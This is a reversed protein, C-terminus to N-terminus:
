SPAPTDGSQRSARRARRHEKAIEDETKLLQRSESLDGIVPRWIHAGPNADILFARVLLTLPIALIAGIPGLVVVWFLVSFFTITQSLSVANGVVKPQIVSQIVANIVGYVVIIWIATPWGGVIFGFVLPPIIALFYGVNPIFSCIFALLGWLLAAPVHMIFLALSNLAGQVLGLVTTVVMYRRVNSSYNALSLVLAPHTRNLQRVITPVYISDGAMLILMTLIIVLTGTLGFVNGVVGTAFNVITSPDFSKKVADIQDPGIGLNTLWTTISKGIQSLQDAYTPLMAVFQAFAIVLAFIFGALLLFVVVSVSGTALGHAVGRKELFGRVPEACITLVLTLLVPALIGRIMSVGVAAITAAALSVLFITGPYARNM